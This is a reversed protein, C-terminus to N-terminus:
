DSAWWDLGEIMTLNMELLDLNNLDLNENKLGSWAWDWWDMEVEEDEDDEDLNHDKEFDLVIEHNM